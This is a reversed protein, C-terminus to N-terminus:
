AGKFRVGVGLLRVPKNQRKFGTTLLETFKEPYLETVTTEVTTRKFDYFKIKIFQKTIPPNGIQSLSHKLSSILAPLKEQCAAITPLDTPYTEETSISKRVRESTVPDEDIGRALQYLHYGFKGFRENLEEISFKQLDGCTYIQMAHMKKATVPGVGPLKEITLPPMFAAIKEPTIVFLGDPKQWDSAIKALFKNPAVGASAILHLDKKIRAKITKAILTASGKCYPCNSVDLYGEDLSLMEVHPTYQRFIRYLVKSVAQYKKFNVPLLVLKPCLKLAHATAMASHLGFKRAIYNCTTLVGRQQPSGGVAVPKSALSPNDRIEIAAFFCDMDIHIIKRM